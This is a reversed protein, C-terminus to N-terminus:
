GCSRIRFQVIYTGGAGQINTTITIKGSGSPVLATVTVTVISTALGGSLQGSTMDLSVENQPQVTATWSLVGGGANHIQFQATGQACPEVPSGLVELVPPGPNPTPTTQPTGAPITGLVRTPAETPLVGIDDPQSGSLGWYIVGIGVLMLVVFVAVFSLLVRPRLADVDASAVPAPPNISSYGLDDLLRESGNGKRTPPTRPRSVPGRREQPTLPEESLPRREFRESGVGDAALPKWDNPAAASPPPQNAPAPALERWQRRINSLTSHLRHLGAVPSDPPPRSPPAGGVLVGGLSEIQGVHDGSSLLHSFFRELRDARPGNERGFEAELATLDSWIAARLSEVEAESAQDPARANDLTRLAENVM